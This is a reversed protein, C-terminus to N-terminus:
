KCRTDRVTVVCKSFFDIAYFKIISMPPKANIIEEYLVLGQSLQYSLGLIFGGDNNELGYPAYIWCYGLIFFLYITLLGTKTTLIELITKTKKFTREPINRIIM